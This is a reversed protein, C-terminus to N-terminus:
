MGLSLIIYMIYFRLWDLFTNLITLNWCGYDEITVIRGFGKVLVCSILNLIYSFVTSVTFFILFNVFHEPSFSTTYANLVLLNLPSPHLPFFQNCLSLCIRRRQYSHYLICIWGYCGIRDSLKHFPICSFIRILQWLSSLVTGKYTFYEM